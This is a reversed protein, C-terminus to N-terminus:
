GPTAYGYRLTIMYGGWPVLHGSDALAPHPSLVHIRNMLPADEKKGGLTANM